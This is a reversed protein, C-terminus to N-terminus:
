AKEERIFDCFERAVADLRSNDFFRVFSLIRRQNLRETNQFRYSERCVDKANTKFRRVNLYLFDAVAKEPEAILCDLGDEDRYSRYGRFAGPKIHQYVFRGIQNNFQSTKKTTVSTIDAVAEPILGYYGLASELSVYSPWLLQNALYFRSPRVTQDNQNLMYLGRKLKIVLGKKGWRTLQNRMVQRDGAAATLFTRVSIFPLERFIDKFQAFKM